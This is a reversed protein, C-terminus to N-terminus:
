PTRHKALTAKYGQGARIDRMCAEEIPANQQCLDVVAALRQSPICLVGNTDAVAIDGTTVVVPKYNEGHSITVASPATDTTPQPILAGRAGVCSIGRAFVDRVRGDVVVARTGRAQLRTALLGGVVANTVTRPASVVVIAGTPITDSFHEHPESCGKTGKPVMQIAVVPGVVPTDLDKAAPTQPIIDPLHGHVGLIGLADAVDCSTFRRLQQLLHDVM